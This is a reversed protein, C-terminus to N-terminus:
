NSGRRGSQFNLLKEIVYNVENDSLEPYMPLSLIEASAKETEALHDAGKIKGLYAKQKHIPVPYHVLPFIDHSNLYAILEDRKATRIVFLHFVHRCNERTVPLIFESGQLARAYMDAIRMRSKNDADLTKLKVRLIAAQIEDLRSNWGSTDSLYRNVWGYERIQRCRDALEGNNTAVAGGDGIAGLNKTPYFSFCSIDGISGAMKEKYGAGHAQACDEILYLDFKRALTLLSDLNVPQGYIHVAIIAKTKGTILSEIKQPDITFYDPEIDAFVPTAGALEIAAVTAVATHSVTIVEDGPGIDCARLAVHIAETGSGVGIVHNTGTFGAFEEEFLRVEEGLIYRGNNLVKTIAADIESKHSDYQAQPNACIVKM